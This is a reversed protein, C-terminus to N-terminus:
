KRIHLNKVRCKQSTPSNKPINFIKQPHQPTKPFTSSKKQGTHYPTSNLKMDVFANTKVGKVGKVG